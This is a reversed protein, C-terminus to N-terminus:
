RRWHKTGLNGDPHIGRHQRKGNQQEKIVLTAKELGILHPYQTRWYYDVEAIIYNTTMWQYSAADGACDFIIGQFVDGDVHLSAERGIYDCSPTALYVEYEADPIQEMQRRYELTALTPQEDYASLWGSYATEDQNSEAGLRIANCGLWVIALAIMLFAVAM